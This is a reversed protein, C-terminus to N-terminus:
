GKINAMTMAQSERKLEKVVTALADPNVGNECLSVMISLTKRDLGCNLLESIEYLIELTERAEDLENRHSQQM